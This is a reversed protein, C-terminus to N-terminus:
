VMAVSRSFVGGSPCAVKWLQKNMTTSPVMTYSTVSSEWGIQLIGYYVYLLSQANTSKPMVAKSIYLLLQEKQDSAVKWSITGGELRTMNM